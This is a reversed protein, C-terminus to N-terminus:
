SREESSTIKTPVPNSESKPESELKKSDGVSVKGNLAAGAEVIITECTVDGTIKATMKLELRKKVTISGEVQGAITAEEAVVQAKLKADSGVTLVASTTIQGDVEGEIVVDGQSKFDGEVRVGRAIVTSGAGGSAVPTPYEGSESRKSSTFM